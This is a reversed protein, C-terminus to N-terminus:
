NSTSYRKFWYCSCTHQFHPSSTARARFNSNSGPKGDWTWCCDHSCFTCLCTCFKSTKCLARASPCHESTKWVTEGFRLPKPHVFPLLRLMKYFLVMSEIKIYYINRNKSLKGCQLTFKAPQRSCDAWFHHSPHVAPWDFSCAPSGKIKWIWPQYKDFIEKTRVARRNGPIPSHLLGTKRGSFWQCIM